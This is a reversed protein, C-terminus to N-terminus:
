DAAPGGHLGIDSRSGDQDLIKPDGGDIAPSESQLTWDGGNGDTFLPNALMNGNETDVTGTNLDLENNYFLSYSM